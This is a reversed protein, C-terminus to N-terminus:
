EDDGDDNTHRAPNYPPKPAMEALLSNIEAEVTMRPRSMRDLIDDLIAPRELESTQNAKRNGLAAKLVTLVRQDDRAERFIGLIAYRFHEFKM